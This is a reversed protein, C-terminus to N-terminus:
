MTLSLGHALYLLKFISGLVAPIMGEAVIIGFISAPTEAVKATVSTAFMKILKILPFPKPPWCDLLIIKINKIM